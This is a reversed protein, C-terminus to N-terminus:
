TEQNDKEIAGGCSSGQGATCGYCHLMTTIPLGQVEALRSIHVVEGALPLGLMQNFDCDYVYGQWDVSLTNKCMVHPLNEAQFSSKLLQLYDDFQNTSLLQSGFRQVPLNALAFLQDFDIQYEQQLYAKYQQQLAEQAPPLMAGQPNYVLNLRLASQKGYGLENLLRLARISHDFTGKGRQKDVNEQLYCPLSAVIEVRHDALFRAMAEYGPELLIVLNCRDIINLGRQHLQEVLWKFNPNMEPAGGTLDVTHVQPMNDLFALVDQMTKEDMSEKRKPGANVHCHTCSLNCTYGLNLQVIELPQRNIQPFDSDRLYPLSDIM